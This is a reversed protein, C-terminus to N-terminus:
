NDKQFRITQDNIKAFYTGPVLGSIDLVQTNNEAPVKVTYVAVGSIDVIRIESIKTKSHLEITLKDKCPNPYLQTSLPSSFNVVAIASYKYTGNRDVMRLRYYNANAPLKDIYNYSSIAQTSGVAKVVGIQNFSEGDTSREIAFFDTNIEEATQWSLMSENGQQRADFSILSLPLPTTTSTVTLSWGAISGTESYAILGNEYLSWVGNPDYHNFSDLTSSTNAPLAQANAIYPRYTGAPFNDGYVDPAPVTSVQDFVYEGLANYFAPGSRSFLCVVQGTPSQVYVQNCAVNPINVGHLTVVVKTTYPNLGSVVLTSPFPNGPGMDYTTISTNNTFTTQGFTQIRSLLTCLLLFCTFLPKM